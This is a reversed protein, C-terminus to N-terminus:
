LILLISIVFEPLHSFTFIIGNIIIMKLIRKKKKEEEGEKFNDVMSKKSKIM